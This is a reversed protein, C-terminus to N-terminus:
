NFPFVYCKCVVLGIVKLCDTKVGIGDIEGYLVGLTRVDRTVDGDVVTSQRTLHYFEGRLIDVDVDIGRHRRVPVVPADTFEVALACVQFFTTIVGIM